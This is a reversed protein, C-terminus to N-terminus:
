RREGSCLVVGDRQSTLIGGVEVEVVEFILNIGEVVGGMTGLVSVVAGHTGGRVKCSPASPLCQATRTLSIILYVVRVSVEEVVITVIRLTVAGVTRWKGIHCGLSSLLTDALIWPIELYPAIRGREVKVAAVVVKGGGARADVILAIIRTEVTRIVTEM